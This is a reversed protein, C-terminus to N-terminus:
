ARPVKHHSSGKRKLPGKPVTMSNLSRMMRGPVLNTKSTAIPCTTMISPILFLTPPSDVTSTGLRGKRFDM